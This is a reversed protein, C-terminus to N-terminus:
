IVSLPDSFIVFENEVKISTVYLAINLARMESSFVSAEIPLSSAEM